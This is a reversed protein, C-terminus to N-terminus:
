SCESASADALAERGATAAAVPCSAPAAALPGFSLQRGHHASGLIDQYGQRQHTHAKAYGCACTSTRGRRPSDPETGAGPGPASAHASLWAGRAHQTAGLREAVGDRLQGLARGHRRPRALDDSIPLRAIAPGGVAGRAFVRTGVTGVADVAARAVLQRTCRAACLAAAQVCVLERCSRRRRCLRRRRPRVRRGRGRARAM